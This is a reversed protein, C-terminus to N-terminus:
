NGEKRALLKLGGDRRYENPDNLVEWLYEQHQLAIYTDVWADSFPELRGLWKRYVDMLLYNLEKKHKLRESAKRQMERKKQEQYIRLRASFSNEYDGGLEAFAEKFSLRDMLMVFTFIDGHAGCGFCHFDKAFIKMSATKEKHFPCCIFGARNPQPIKYRELIDRMSYLSKIEEKTMRTVDWSNWLGKERVASIM